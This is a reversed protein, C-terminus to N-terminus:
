QTIEKNNRQDRQFLIINLMTVFKLLYKKTLAYKKCIANSQDNLADDYKVFFTFLASLTSLGNANLNKRFHNSTCNNRYKEELKELDRRNSNGTNWYEYWPYIGWFIIQENEAKYKEINKLSNGM